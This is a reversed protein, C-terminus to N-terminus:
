CEVVSVILFISNQEKRVKTVCCGIACCGIATRIFVLAKTGETSM